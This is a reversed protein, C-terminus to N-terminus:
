RTILDKYRKIRDDANYHYYVRNAVEVSIGMFAACDSVAIGEEVMYRGFSHRAMHPHIKKDVTFYALKSIDRLLKAVRNKNITLPGIIAIEDLVMQLSKNIPYVVKGHTKTTRLYVTGAIVKTKPNFPYWDSIRLGLYCGLMFYVLVMHMEPDELVHDVMGQRWKERQEKILFEADHENEKPIEFAGKGLVKKKMYGEILATTQVRRILRLTCNITTDSYRKKGKDVEKLRGKRKDGEPISETQMKHALKRCWEATIESFRPERGNLKKIRNLITNTTSNDGRIQRAYDFLGPAKKGKITERSIEKGDALDNIIKTRWAKRQEALATNMADADKHGKVKKAKANWQDESDIYLKTSEYFHPDNGVKIRFWIPFGKQIKSYRNKRIGPIISYKM